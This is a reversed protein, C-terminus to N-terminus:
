AELEEGNLATGGGCPILLDTAECRTHLIPIVAHPTEPQFARTIQYYHRGFDRWVNCDNDIQNSWILEGAAAQPAFRFSGEGVYSEPVLRRFSDPAIAFSVEFPANLWEPNTDYDKGEDADVEIGPEVFIPQGEGDVGSARLVEQDIGLMWGRHVVDTFSYAALQDLGAEKGYGSLYGGQVASLIDVNAQSRLQEVTEASGVFIFYGQGGRRWPVLRLNERMFQSLRILFKFSVPSDPTTGPFDVGVRNRGGNLLAGFGGSSLAASSLTAKVGSYDLLNIRIDVAILNSINDKLAVEAREYSGLVSYFSGKVCVLPGKGRYTLLRAVFEHQGIQDANGTTGCVERNDVFAPRVLSTGPTVRNTVLTRVEVGENSPFTGGPIISPFPSVIANNQNIGIRLQSVQEAVSQSYEEPSLECASFSM